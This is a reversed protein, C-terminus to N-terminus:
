SLAAIAAFASFVCTAVSSVLLTRSDFRHRRPRVIVTREPADEVPVPAVPVIPSPGTRHRPVRGRHLLLRDTATALQEFNIAEIAELDQM